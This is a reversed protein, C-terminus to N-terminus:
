DRGATLAVRCVSPAARCLVPSGVPGPRHFLQPLRESNRGPHIRRASDATPRLCGRPNAIRDVVRNTNPSAAASTLRTWISYASPLECVADVAGAGSPDTAFSGHFHTLEDGTSTARSREICDDFNATIQRGGADLHRALFTHVGNPAPGLMDSLVDVLADLGIIRRVGDLVTELRPYEREVRLAAYYDRIRELCCPEFAYDLARVTLEGGLPACTPADNSIGAGSWFIVSEPEVRALGAIELAKVATVHRASM